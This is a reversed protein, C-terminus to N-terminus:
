NTRVPRDRAADVAAHVTLALIRAAWIMLLLMWGGGSALLGVPNGLIMWFAFLLVAFVPLFFPKLFAERIVLVFVVILVTILVVFSPSM